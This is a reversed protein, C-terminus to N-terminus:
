GVKRVIRGRQDVAMGAPLDGTVKLPWEPIWAPNMAECVMFCLSYLVESIMFLPLYIPHREVVMPAPSCLDGFFVPCIGFWGKHTLATMM